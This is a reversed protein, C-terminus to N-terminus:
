WANAWRPRTRAGISDPVPSREHEGVAPCPVPCLGCMGECEGQAVGGTV